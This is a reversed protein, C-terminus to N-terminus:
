ITLCGRLAARHAAAANGTLSNEFKGVALAAHFSDNMPGGDCVARFWDFDVAAGDNASNKGHLLCVKNLSLPIKQLNKLSPLVTKLGKSGM